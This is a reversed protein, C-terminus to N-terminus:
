DRNCWCFRGTHRDLHCKRMNPLVQIDKDNIETSVLFGKKELFKNPQKFIIEYDNESNFTFPINNLYYACILDMLVLCPFGYVDIKFACHQCIYPGIKIDM